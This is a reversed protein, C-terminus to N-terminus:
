CEVDTEIKVSDVSKCNLSREIRADRTMQLQIVDKQLLKLLDFKTPGLLYSYWKGLTTNDEIHDHM